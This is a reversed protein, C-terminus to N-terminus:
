EPAGQPVRKQFFPEGATTDVYRKLVSLREALHAAAADAVSLYHEVPDLTIPGLGGFFVKAPHSLHVSQGSVHIRTCDDGVAKFPVSLSLSHAM